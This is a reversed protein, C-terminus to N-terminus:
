KRLNQRGLQLLRTEQKGRLAPVPPLRSNINKLNKKQTKKNGKKDDFKMLLDGKRLMQIANSVSDLKCPFTYKELPKMISGNLCIRTEKEPRDVLIFGTSLWPKGKQNWPSVSGMKCWKRIQETVEDARERVSEQNPIALPRIKKGIIEYPRPVFKSIRLRRNTYIRTNDKMLEFMIKNSEHGKPKTCITRKKFKVADRNPIDDLNLFLDAGTMVLHYALAQDNEPMYAILNRWNAKNRLWIGSVFDSEKKFFLTEWDPQETGEIVRIIRDLLGTEYKEWQDL